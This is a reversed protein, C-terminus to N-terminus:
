EIRRLQELVAPTAPYIHPPGEKQPLLPVPSPPYGPSPGATAVEFEDGARKLPLLYEGPGSWDPRCSELNKVRIMTDQAPPQRGPRTWPVAVVKVSGGLDDVQAVVDLDANLLQPRSLVVPHRVTLTLFGLYGIWGLFAAAALALWLLTRRRAAPQPTTMTTTAGAPRPLTAM